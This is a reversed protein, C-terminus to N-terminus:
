TRGTESAPRKRAGEKFTFDPWVDLVSEKARQVIRAYDDPLSEGPLLQVDIRVRPMAKDPKIALPGAPLLAVAPPLLVHTNDSPRPFEVSAFRQM